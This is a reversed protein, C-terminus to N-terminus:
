GIEYSNGVFYRSISPITALYQRNVCAAAKSVLRERDYGSSWLAVIWKTCGWPWVGQPPPAQRVDDEHGDGAM